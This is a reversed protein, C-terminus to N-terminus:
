VAQYCLSAVIRLRLMFDHVYSFISDSLQESALPELERIRAATTPSDTHINKLTAKDIHHHFDSLAKVPIDNVAIKNMNQQSLLSVADQAHLHSLVVSFCMLYALLTALFLKTTNTNM